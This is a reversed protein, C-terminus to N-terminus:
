LYVLPDLYANSSVLPMTVSAGACSKFNYKDIKVGQTAVVGLHLHPGTSYGSQGSYAIVQGVAVQQGPSAKIVSLHGYITSLGNPHRLLVWKGYSAGRCAPDTDGVGIVEGSGAAKVPTGIAARFDVGNHTGSLYLRKADVTKGFKQTIFISDLPWRLVGRGAPPLRNPDIIIQLQSEFDFLEKEFANKRAITTALLKRYSVEEKKTAELLRDKEAQNYKAVERQDSLREKLDALRQREKETEGKKQNLDEKILSLTSINQQLDRQFASLESIRTWVDSTRNHDLLIEVLSQSETVRWQRLAEGIALRRHKLSQDKDGIELALKELTLDTKFVQNETVKIETELKKKTTDLRAIEGILNKSTQETSKLEERYVEITAELKKIEDNHNSIKSKLEDITAAQVPGSLLFGFIFFLLRIRLKPPM